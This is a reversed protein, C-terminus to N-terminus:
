LNTNENEQETMIKLHRRLLTTIMEWVIWPYKKKLEGNETIMEFHDLKEKYTKGHLENKIINEIIENIEDENIIDRDNVERDSVTDPINNIKEEIIYIIDNWAKGKEDELNYKNKIEEKIMNFNWIMEEKTWSLITLIIEEAIEDFETARKLGLDNRM